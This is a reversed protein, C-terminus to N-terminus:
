YRETLGGFLLVCVVCAGGTSFLQGADSLLAWGLLVFASLRSHAM